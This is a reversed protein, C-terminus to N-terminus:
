KLNMVTKSKLMRAIDPSYVKIYKDFAEQIFSAVLYQSDEEPTLGVYTYDGYDSSMMYHENLYFLYTFHQVFIATLDTQFLNIYKVRDKLRIQNNNLLLNHYFNYHTHDNCRERIKKYLEQKQLLETIPKLKESDKIYESMVPFRPLQEKGSRWNDIREVIFNDISFHDDLYLNTYINIITLDYYKRLLTYSDNMRGSFLIDKISEVTGSMSTFVHTDLNFIAKTGQSDFRMTTDSLAKYFNILGNLQGFVSHELYEKELNHKPLHELNM